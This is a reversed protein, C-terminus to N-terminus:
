DKVDVEAFALVLRETGSELRQSQPLKIARAKWGKHVLVGMTPVKDGTSQLLRYSRGLEDSPITVRSGENEPSIAEVAFYDNVLSRLGSHVVRAVAGVQQDPLAHIDAMLFDLFRGREQMNRVFQVVAQEDGKQQTAQSLEQTKAELAAAYTRNQSKLSELEKEAESARAELNKAEAELHTLKNKIDATLTPAGRRISALLFLSSVFALSAAITAYSSQDMAGLFVTLAALIVSPYILVQTKM